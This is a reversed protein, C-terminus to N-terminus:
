LSARCLVCSKATFNGQDMTGKDKLKKTGQNM